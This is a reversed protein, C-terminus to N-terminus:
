LAETALEALRDAIREAAGPHALDRAAAGMSALREPDKLLDALADLLKGPVDLEREELMAAAGAEVMAEANRAQHDDAAAAFPILLAPRGAAALEAVTSAGSRSVILHSEAFCAPMDDIFARLIPAARRM